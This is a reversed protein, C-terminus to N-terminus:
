VVFKRSVRGASRSRMRAAAVSLFAALMSLHLALFRWAVGPESVAPDDIDSYDMLEEREHQLSVMRAMAHQFPAPSSDKPFARDM